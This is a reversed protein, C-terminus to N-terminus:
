VFSERLNIEPPISDHVPPFNPDKVLRILQTIAHSTIAESPLAIVSLAPTSFATYDNHTSGLSLISLEEPILLKQHNFHYLMGLAIVDSECILHKPSKSLEQYRAAASIGGEYSNSVSFCIDSKIDSDKCSQILAEIRHSSAVYKETSRIIGIEEINREKLLQICTKAIDQEPVYVTSYKQSQRNILVLPTHLSVSELYDLDKESTGGIIIGDYMNNLADEFSHKIKNNKYTRVLVECSYQQKALEKQIGTLLTGLMETRADFPWFLVFVKTENSSRLRRATLNPRYNLEQIAEMVKDYTSAPISREKAKGNIVISVTSVSVGALKAVDKMTTM